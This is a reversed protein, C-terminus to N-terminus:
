EMDYALKSNDNLLHKAKVPIILKEGAKINDENLQNKKSVWEIFEQSSLSHNDAYLNAIEWLSQGENVVIEQYGSTDEDSSILIYLGLLISIVVLMIVYSYKKWLILM